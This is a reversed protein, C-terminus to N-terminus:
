SQQIGVVAWREANAERALHWVEDLTTETGDERLQGTYRVSVVQRGADEAWDAIDAELNLVDTQSSAGQRGELDLQVEAFMEPSLFERLDGLNGADHAAQMRIFTIKALRVFADRDFNVPLTPTPTSMPAAHSSGMPQAADQEFSGGMPGNAAYQMAPARPKNRNMFWRIAMFAALALLAMMLFNAMEEGFGLHSALAALGLGAALGALPGMWSRKQPAAQAAATPQRQAQQAQQPQAQRQMGSSRGGGMRKAEAEPTVLALSIFVTFLALLLNKM